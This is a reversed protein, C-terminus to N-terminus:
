HCTILGVSVYGTKARNSSVQVWGQSAEGTSRVADGNSLRGIVVGGPSARVHAYGDNSLIVCGATTAAATPEQDECYVQVTFKRAVSALAEPELKTPHADFDIKPLIDKVMLFNVAIAV